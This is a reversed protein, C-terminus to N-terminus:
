DVNSLSKLTMEVLVRFGSRGEKIGDVFWATKHAHSTGMSMIIKLENRGRIDLNHQLKYDHGFILTKKSVGGM